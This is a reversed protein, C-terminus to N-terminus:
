MKRGGMGDREWGGVGGGYDVCRGRACLALRTSWRTDRQCQRRRTGSAVGTGLISVDAGVVWLIAALVQRGGWRM